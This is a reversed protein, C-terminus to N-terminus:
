PLRDRAREVDDDLLLPEGVSAPSDHAHGLHRAHFPGDDGRLVDEHELLPRDVLVALNATREAGGANARTEGRPEGRVANAQRRLEEPEFHLDSTGFQTTNPRRATAKVNM